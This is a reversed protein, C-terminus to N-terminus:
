SNGNSTQKQPILSNTTATNSTCLYHNPTVFAFPHAMRSKTQSTQPLTAHVSATPRPKRRLPPLPQQPLPHHRTYFVLANTKTKSHTRKQFRTRENKNEVANTKASPIPVTITRRIASRRPASLPVVPPPHPQLLPPPHAPVTHAEPCTPAPLRMPPPTAASPQHPCVPRTGTPFPPPHTATLRTQPHRTRLPAQARVM